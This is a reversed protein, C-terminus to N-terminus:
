AIVGSTYVSQGTRDGELELVVGVPLTASGAFKADTNYNWLCFDPVSFAFFLMSGANKHNQKKQAFLGIYCNSCGSNHFYCDM